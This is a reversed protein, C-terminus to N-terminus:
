RSSTLGEFLPDRAIYDKALPRADVYMKLLAAARRREGLVLRLYAEDYYLDVIMTSDSAVARRAKALEALAIDPRGARASITAAVMRHSIAHYQRGEAAQRDPPDLSELTRVLGWASDPRPVAAADHRMLTLDCEVFRWDGPFTWRGRQCWQRARSYQGLMLTNYFLQVLVSRAEILYTDEQAAREAALGAKATNGRYWLLDSLTAWARVRTSDYDLAKRLDREARDVRDPEEATTQLESVLAWRLVGRVELAAPNAPARRVAEDALGLGSRLMRTRTDGHLFVSRDRAIWGRDILVQVWSTDAAQALALLSDADELSELATALDRANQQSALMRGDEWLQQAKRALETATRSHSGAGALRLRIERGMQRRLGAALEEAMRRELAAAPAAAPWQFSLSDIYTNSRADILQARARISDGSRSVGGDVIVNARLAAVMSDFPVQRDRYPKVGNRSIVRFGRVGSLELILEETVGEAINRLASDGSQADFYLVALRPPGTEVPAIARAAPSGRNRAISLGAVATLALAVVTGAYIWRRSDNRAPALAAILKTVTSFRDAPVKALSRRIAASTRSSVLPRVLRVDPVPARMHKALLAQATSGSYPPEGALMEYVVCGLSYVDSRGDLRDGGGAQEPSMYAPTGVALGSETLRDSAAHEIARAVGFDAVMARDGVLLINEPKIDRHVLGRAHAHELAAAIDSAIQLSEEVGLQIERRLRDRLSEGEVYPMVYYLFGGASGSDHVPLINPHALASAYQIERLFRDTGVSAALDPYLVKIAVKRGHKLDEALYVIATSGRGIERDVLYRETLASQVSVKQDEV